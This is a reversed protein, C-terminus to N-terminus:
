LKMDNDYVSIANDNHNNKFVLYNNNIKGIIEFNTRRSDDREPESYSIKQALSSFGIALWIVTFGTALLSSTTKKKMMTSCYMNYALNLITCSRGLSEM